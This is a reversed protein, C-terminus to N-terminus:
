KKFYKNLYQKVFKKKWHGKEYLQKEIKARTYGKNIAKEIYEDLEKLKLPYKQKILDVKSHKRKLILYSLLLILAALAFLYSIKIKSVQYKCAETKVYDYDCHNLDKCLYDIGKETCETVPACQWDSICAPAIKEPSIYSCKQSEAPKQNRVIESFGFQEKKKECENLDYCKRTQIQSSTCPGWESCEWKETCSVFQGDIKKKTKDDVEKWGM